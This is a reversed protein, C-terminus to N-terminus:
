NYYAPIIEVGYREAIRLVQYWTENIETTNDSYSSSHFNSSSASNNVDNISNLYTAQKQWAQMHKRWAYQFDRPLNSDNMSSSKIFYENMAQRYTDNSYLEVDSMSRYGEISRIKKSRAFGNRFVDRKLLSKIKYKAISNNTRLQFIQQSNELKPFGFLLGVLSVSLVFTLIFATFGSIFKM